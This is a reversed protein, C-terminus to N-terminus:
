ILDDGAVTPHTYLHGAARIVVPGIDDLAIAYVACVILQELHDCLLCYRTVTTLGCNLALALDKYTLSQGKKKVIM